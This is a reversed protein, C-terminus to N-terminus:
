NISPTTVRPATAGNPIAKNGQLVGMGRDSWSDGWSNWIRVGFSGSEVEVLDLGCVSHGWWNFDMIVPIRCLLCTAVQEFTLNRDYQAQALDIWGETFRHLKANEWTAPNDNARSVSQQPWFASTPIGVKMQHDLGQAGWGGEDRFNKIMCAGAYASLDVYPLGDRARCAIMASAGSHYWCYGRGNQDRAPIPQGNNGARCFDSLQTKTAVLEKIRDPWESRPILPMEVAQYLREGEYCGFPAKAYDRPVTGCKKVEGGIQPDIWRAFDGDHIVIENPRLM